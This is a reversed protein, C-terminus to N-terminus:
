RVLLFVEWNCDGQSLGVNYEMTFIVVQLLTVEGNLDSKGLGTPSRLLSTGSYHWRRDLDTSLTVIYLINEMETYTLYCTLHKYKKHRALIENVNLFIFTTTIVFAPKFM